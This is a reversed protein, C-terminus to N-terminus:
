LPNPKPQSFLSPLLYCSDSYSNKFLHSNSHFGSSYYISTNLCECPCKCTNTVFMSILQEGCSWLRVKVYSALVSYFCVLALMAMCFSISSCLLFFSITMCMTMYLSLVFSTLLWQNYTFGYLFTWFSLIASLTMRHWREYLHCNIPLRCTIAIVVSYM